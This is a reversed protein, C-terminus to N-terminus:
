RVDAPRRGQPLLHRLVMVTLEDVLAAEDILRPAYLLAGHLVGEVAHTLLFVAMTPDCDRLEARRYTFGARLLEETRAEVEVVRALAGVRPVQETLVKHLKPHVRHCAIIAEILARVAIEIPADIVEAMKDAVIQYQAEVER